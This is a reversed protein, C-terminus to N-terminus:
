KKEEAVAAARREEWLLAVQTTIRKKNGLNVAGQMNTGVGHFRLWVDGDGDPQMVEIDRLVKVADPRATPEGAISTPSADIRAALNNKESTSNFKAIVASELDIGATIACLTACHVVDALEEGLHEFTDRSGRWGHRERELKKIVNQAEGCEGGLENGRFSLDPKQEPCWEEQRVLHAQQLARLTLATPEDAPAIKSSRANLILVALDDWVELKPEFALEFMATIRRIATELQTEDSLGAVSASASTEEARGDDNNGDADPYWSLGSVSASASTEEKTLGNAVANSLEFIAATIKKYESAIYNSGSELVGHGTILGAASSLALWARRAVDISMQAPTNETQEEGLFPPDSVLDDLICELNGILGHDKTSEGRKMQQHIQKVLSEVEDALTSREMLATKVLTVVQARQFWHQKENVPDLGEDKTSQAILAEIREDPLVQNTM